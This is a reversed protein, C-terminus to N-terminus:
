GLMPHGWEGGFRAVLLGTAHTPTSTAALAVLALALARPLRRPATKSRPAPTTM